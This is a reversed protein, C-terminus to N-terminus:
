HARRTRLLGRVFRVMRSLRERRLLTGRARRQSALTRLRSDFGELIPAGHGPFGAGPAMAAFAQLTQEYQRDNHNALRMPRSLRDPHSIVLDGVFAVGLHDAVYCYSGPTHGPAPIARIGALVEEEGEVAVDVPTTERKGAIRSLILRGVHTRGIVPRLVLAGDNEACDGRGAVVRAGTARRIANAAGSHDAHVHTLLIADVRERLGARELEQIVAPASSAFGTDVLAMRGDAAEVVFVNSGRTGHLWWIGPAVREVM